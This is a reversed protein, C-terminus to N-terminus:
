YSLNQKLLNYQEREQDPFDCTYEDGVDEQLFASREEKKALYATLRQAVIGLVIVVGLVALPAIVAGKGDVDDCLECTLTTWEMFYGRKCTDCIPGEYEKKCYETSNTSNAPSAMM